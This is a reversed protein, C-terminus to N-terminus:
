QEPTDMDRPVTIEGRIQQWQREKETVQSGGPSKMKVVVFVAAHGAGLKVIEGKGSIYNLNQGMGTKVKAELAPWRAIILASIEKTTFKHGKTWDKAIMRAADIVTEPQGPSASAAAPRLKPAKVARNIKEGAKLINVKPIMPKPPLWGGFIKDAQEILGDLQSLKSDYEDCIEQRAARLNEVISNM